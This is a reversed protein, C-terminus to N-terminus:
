PQRPRRAEASDRRKLACGVKKTSKDRACFQPTSWPQLKPSNGAVHAPELDEKAQSRSSQEQQQLKCTCEQLFV